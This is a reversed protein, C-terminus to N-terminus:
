VSVKALYGHDKIYNCNVNHDEPMTSGSEPGNFILESSSSSWEESNDASYGRVEM